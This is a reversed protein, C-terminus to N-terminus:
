EGVDMDILLMPDFAPDRYGRAKTAVVTAGVETVKHEHTHGHFWMDVKQDNDLIFDEMDTCAYAYDILSSGGYRNGNAHAIIPAMHTMVVVPITGDLKSIEQELFGKAVNHFEVTDAPSILRGDPEIRIVYYDNMARQCEYMVEPDSDRMNTWLTTGIIRVKNDITVAENDLITLNPIEKLYNRFTSVGDRINYGYYEHNGMVMFVHRYAKCIRQLDLYRTTFEVGSIPWDELPRFSEIEGTDGALLLIDNINNEDYLPKNFDSLKNKALRNIDLHLDSTGWIKM